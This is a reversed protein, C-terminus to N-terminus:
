FKYNEIDEKSIISGKIKRLQLFYLYMQIDEKFVDHYIDLLERDLHKFVQEKKPNANTIGRTLPNYENNISKMFQKLDDELKYDFIMLNDPTFEKFFNSQHEVHAEVGSDRCDLMFKKIRNRENKIKMYQGLYGLDPYAKPTHYRIFTEIYGTIFRELPNRIIAFVKKNPANFAGMNNLNTLNYTNRVSSTGNKPILIFGMKPNQAILKISAKM